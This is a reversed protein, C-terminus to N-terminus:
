VVELLGEDWMQVLAREMRELGYIDRFWYVVAKPDVPERNKVFSLIRGRPTSTVDGGLAGELLLLKGEESVQLM